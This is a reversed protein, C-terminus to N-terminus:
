SLYGNIFQDITMPKKGAPQVELLNLGSEDLRAKLIKIRSGSYEFYTGPWPTFARIKQDMESLGEDLTIEADARELM